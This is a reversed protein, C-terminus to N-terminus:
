DDVEIPILIWRGNIFERVVPTREGDIWEYHDVILQTGDVTIYDPALMWDASCASLLIALIIILRALM